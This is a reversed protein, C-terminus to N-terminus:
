ARRPARPPEAAAATLRADAGKFEKQEHRSRAAASLESHQAGAHNLFPLSVNRLLHYSLDTKKSERLKGQGHVGAIELTDLVNRVQINMYFIKLYLAYEPVTGLIKVPQSSTLSANSNPQLGLPTTACALSSSANEQRETSASSENSQKFSPLKALSDIDLARLANVSECLTNTLKTLGEFLSM